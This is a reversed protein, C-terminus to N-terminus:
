MVPKMWLPLGGNASEQLAGASITSFAPLAAWAPAAFLSIQENGTLAPLDRPNRRTDATLNNYIFVSNFRVGPMMSGKCTIFYAARKLVVGIKKLCDFSLPGVRRASLIRESSKVGIGPIRLLMERPATNIEVPFSNLNRLAWQCKPDLMPDLSPFEESLLEKSEFGYLRLLWDAQYLRHERLLPPPQDRPLLANTGIPIYASYFVRKLTYKKYLSESLRMIQLDTDPTAGIIMQTSQGAPAFPRAHKDAVDLGYDSVLAFFCAYVLRAFM